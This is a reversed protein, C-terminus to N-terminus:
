DHRIPATWRVRTGAIRDHFTLRDGRLAPLVDLTWWLLSLLALGVAAMTLPVLWKIGFRVGFAIASPPPQDRPVHRLGLAAKGMSRGFLGEALFTPVGAAVLLLGLRLQPSADPVLLFSGATLLALLMGDVTTAAIRPWHPPPADATVDTTM